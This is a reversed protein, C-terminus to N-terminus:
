LRFAANQVEEAVSNLAVTLPTGIELMLALQTNFFMVEKATVPKSFREIFNGPAIRQKTKKSGSRSRTAASAAGTTNFNLAM